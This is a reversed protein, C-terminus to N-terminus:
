PDSAREFYEPWRPGVGLTSSFKLFLSSTNRSSLVATCSADDNTRIVTMEERDGAVNLQSEFQDAGSLAGAGSAPTACTV